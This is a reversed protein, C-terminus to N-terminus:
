LVCKMIQCETCVINQGPSSFSLNTPFLKLTELNKLDTLTKKPKLTCPPRSVGDIEVDCRKQNLSHRSTL